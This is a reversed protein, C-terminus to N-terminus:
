DGEGPRPEARAAVIAGFSRGDLEAATLGTKAAVDEETLAGCELARRFFNLLGYGTAADDFKEGVRTAQASAAIFNSLREAAEDLGELVDAYTAAYRPVLQAPHLDWGQYIGLRIAHRVNRYHARWAAHVVRENERRKAPMTDTAHPAIPMDNTAGDVVWVGRGAAANAMVLRMFDCAPHRMSQHLSTVGLSSQYDYAGLHVSRCRGACADIAAPVACRGDPGVVLQPTEILLEIEISGAPWGFREEARDLLAALAAAEAPSTVKPLTVVFARPAGGAEAYASLFGDLTRVARRRFEASLPKVRIGISPPIVTMGALTRASAVAHGDEEEDSRIGYGDEFDIRYDEVPETALKHRVRALVEDAISEGSRTTGSLGLASGFTRGDVAFRVLADGAIRGFKAVLDAAFRNAGGYVAHVPQRGVRAGPYAAAMAADSQELDTFVAAVDAETLSRNM